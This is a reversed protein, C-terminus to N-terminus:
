PCIEYHQHNERRCKIYFLFTHLRIEFLYNSLSHKRTSASDNCSKHLINDQMTIVDDAVTTNAM